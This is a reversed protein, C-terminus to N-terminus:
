NSENNKVRIKSKVVYNDHTDCHYPGYPGSNDHTSYITFTVENSQEKYVKYLELLQKFKTLDAVSM